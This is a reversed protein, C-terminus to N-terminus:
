SLRWMLLMMAIAFNTYCFLSTIRFTEKRVIKRSVEIDGVVVFTTNNFANHWHKLKSINEQIPSHTNSTYWEQLAILFGTIFLPIYMWDVTLTQYYYSGIIALSGWSIAFGYKNHIWKPIELNYAVIFFMLLVAVIIGYFSTKIIAYTAISAFGSIGVIAILWLTSQKINKIMPRWDAYMADFSYAAFVLGFLILLYTIALRNIHITPSVVAGYTVIAILALPLPFHFLTRYEKWNISM